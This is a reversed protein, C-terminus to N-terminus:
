AISPTIAVLGGMEGLKGIPKPHCKMQVPHEPESAALSPEIGGVAPKGAEGPRVDPFTLELQRQVKSRRDNM